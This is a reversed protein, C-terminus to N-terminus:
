EDGDNPQLYKEEFIDIECGICVRDRDMTGPKADLRSCVKGCILTLQSLQNFYGNEQFTQFDEETELKAIQEKLETLDMQKYRELIKNMEYIEKSHTREETVNVSSINDLKNLVRSFDNKYDV